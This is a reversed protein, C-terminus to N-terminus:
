MGRGDELPNGPEDYFETAQIAEAEGLRRGVGIGAAFILAGIIWGIFLTAVWGLPGM